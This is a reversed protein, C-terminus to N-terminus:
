KGYIKVELDHWQKEYDENYICNINERDFQWKLPNNIIYERIKNLENEDRIIHEYYNRQWIYPNSKDFGSKDFGSKNILYCTKAKFRRVIAGLTIESIVMPNNRIYPKSKDSRQKNPVIFRAGVIFLICHIHNPMIVFTDLKINQNQSPLNSLVYRVIKGYKNLRMEGNVVEGLICEKNHACITIFYAGKESYNYNKLRISHRYFKKQNRNM